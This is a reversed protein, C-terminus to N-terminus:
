EDGTVEGQQEIEVEERRVQDSVTERTVVPTKRIRVVEKVVPRKVLEEEIIPVEIVGGLDRAQGVTTTSEDDRAAAMEGPIAVNEPTATETGVAGGNQWQEYYARANAILDGDLTEGASSADPSDEIVQKTYPVRLGAGTIDAGALPVLRHSHFLRGLSVEVFQPTQNADLYTREVTGSEQGDGDIVTMGDYDTIM